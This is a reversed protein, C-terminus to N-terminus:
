AQQSSDYIIPLSLCAASLSSNKIDNLSPNHKLKKIFSTECKKLDVTIVSMIINTIESIQNAELKAIIGHLKVKKLSVYEEFISVLSKSLENLNKDKPIIEELVVVKVLYHDEKKIFQAIKGRELGQIIVRYSGNNQEASKEIRAIVGVRYIGGEEPNESLQDKQVSLFIFGNYRELSSKLANISKERGVLIPVIAAPFTVMERLPILPLVIGKKTLSDM